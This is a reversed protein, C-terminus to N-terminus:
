PLCKSKLYNKEKHVEQTLHVNKSMASLNHHGERTRYHEVFAIKVFKQERSRNARRYLILRAITRNTGLAFM